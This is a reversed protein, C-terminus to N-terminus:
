TSNRIGDLEKKLEKISEVLIPVVKTYDVALHSDEGNLGEIESVLEPVIERVEQAIFGIDHKGNLKEKWNFEVGRMKLVDELGYKTHKINTKLREDSAVTSSYATIDANAHFTGGDSMRFDEVNDILFKIMADTAFDIYEDSSASGVKLSTNYISTITTQAPTVAIDNANATIGNGGIVNMVGSSATTGAGALGTAVGDSLHGDDVSGSVIDGSDVTDKAALAGAVGLNTRAASASSAGTGGHAIAVDTAAWVGTGVTGTTTIDGFDVNLTVGTISLGTGPTM